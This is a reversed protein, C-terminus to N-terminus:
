DSESPPPTRYFIALLLTATALGLGASIATGTWGSLDDAIDLASDISYRGPGITAITVVVVSIVVNYEVGEKFVYFGHMRHVWAAVTMVGVMGAAALPTLFGIALLIGTGIETTAATLAQFKGTGKKMGIFEFWGATGPIKGGMFYKQYGHAAMTLGVVVRLILLTVNIADLNDAYTFVEAAEGNLLDAGVDQLRM